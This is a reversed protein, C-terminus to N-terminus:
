PDETLIFCFAHLIYFGSTFILLYVTFSIATCHLSTYLCPQSPAIFHPHSLLSVTIFCHYHLLLPHCLLLLHYLRHQHYDNTLSVFHHEAATFYWHLPEAFQISAAALTSWRFSSFGSHYVKVYFQCKSNETLVWAYQLTKTNRDPALLWNLVVLHRWSRPLLVLHWHKEQM